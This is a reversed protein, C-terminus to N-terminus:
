ECRRKTQLWISVNFPIEHLRNLGFSHKLHAILVEPVESYDKVGIFHAHLFFLFVWLHARELKSIQLFDSDQIRSRHALAIKVNELLRVNMRLSLNEFKVWSLCTPREGELDLEGISFERQWCTWLLFHFLPDFSKLENEDHVFGSHGLWFLVRVYVRMSNWIWIDRM